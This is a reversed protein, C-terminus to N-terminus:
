PAPTELGERVRLIIGDVKVVEGSGLTAEVECVHDGCGLAKSAAATYSPTCKGATAPDLIAMTQTEEAVGPASVINRRRWKVVAGTLDVAVGGKTVTFVADGARLTAGAVLPVITLM